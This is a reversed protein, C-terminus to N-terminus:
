SWAGTELSKQSVTLFYKCMRFIFVPLQKDDSDAIPFCIREGEETIRTQRLVVVARGQTMKGLKSM